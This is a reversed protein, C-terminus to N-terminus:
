KKRGTFRIVCGTGNHYLGESLHVEKEMFEEIDYGTFDREIEELSFLTPLDKPGGVKPNRQAYELNKKSFVEIILTGGPKLLTNLIKHFHPRIDPSFHSYILVIADFEGPQYDLEPLNGTSYNISVKHKSALQLAKKKGEESIDFSYVDWGLTAAYVGNRGEGDAPFLIKGPKLKQLQEKLYENPDEGYAYEPQKFRENWMQEPTM